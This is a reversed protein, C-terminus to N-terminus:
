SAGHSSSLADHPFAAVHHNRYGTMARNAILANVVAEETAHVVAAFFPNISAWPVFELRDLPRSAEGLADANAGFGGPNGTSLALFIDGSTHSGHTGTRALGITVRRALARCQDPLLPADTAVIVIVSGAGQATEPRGDDPPLSAGLHRGRITLENRRGFNAQLFVGVTYTEGGHEVLRSATGNGGKYGYCVMGTGGGVSGEQVPGQTAAELAAVVHDTTLHQRNIENLMGDWTEAVVPLLWSEGLEPHRDAVWEVIGAHAVGVAHTNTICVPGTMTGSEAIWAAGTMEGNGNLVHIGAACPDGLDSRRPIIATVGTRVNDGEILTTVGVEIGPVDTIANWAGPIGPFEVGVGRARALGDPTHSWRENM